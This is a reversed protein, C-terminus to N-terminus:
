GHGQEKMWEVLVDAHHQNVVRPKMIQNGYQLEWGCACLWIAEKNKGLGVLRVDHRDLLALIPDATLPLHADTRAPLTIVPKELVRTSTIDARQVPNRIRM